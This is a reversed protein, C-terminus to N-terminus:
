VELEGIKAKMQEILGDMGDRRVISRYTDRYSSVMSVNEVEVDYVFWGDSRLRLKYTVPVENSSTVIVTEVSARNETIEEKRYEVTENTYAKIRGIYTNEITQMLLDRFENQQEATASRWNTSLVSQAMATADFARSIEASIAPRDNEFEFGPKRLVALINDVVLKVAATPAGTQAVVVPATLLSGLLLAASLLLTRFGSLGPLTFTSTSM